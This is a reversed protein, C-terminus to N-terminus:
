SRILTAWELGSAAWSRKQEAFDYARKGMVDLDIDGNLTEAIRRALDAADESAFTVLGTCEAALAALAPIDSVIVARGFSMAMLAVGSEYIRLYPLVVIDAARYYNPLIDDAVHGFDFRVLHEVGHRRAVSRYYKEDESKAKGAVLLTFDERDKFSRISALLIDLGKERRLSGFLLYIHDHPPLNLKERAASMSPQSFQGIYNGHPIITSKLIAAPVARCLTDLSHGNHVVVRDAIKIVSNMYNRAVDRDTRSVDHIICVIKVGSAKALILDFIELADARFIHFVVFNVRNRKNYIAAFVSSSLLKCARSFKNGKGYAGVFAKRWLYNYKHYAPESPGHVTVKIGTAAMAAAMGHTYYNMGGHEGLVDIIAVHNM